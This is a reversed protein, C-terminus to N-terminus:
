IVVVVVVVIVEFCRMLIDIFFNIYIYANNFIYNKINM